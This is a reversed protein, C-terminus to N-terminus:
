GVPEAPRQGSLGPGTPPPSAHPDPDLRFSPGDGLREAPTGYKLILATVVSRHERPDLRRARYPAARGEREVRCRPDRQLNRAWHSAESATAVLLAGDAAEVFGIVAHRPLGSRRGRTELRIARGWAVLDDEFSEPGPPPGDM